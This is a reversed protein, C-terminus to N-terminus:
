GWSSRSVRQGYRTEDGRQRRRELCVAFEIGVAPLAQQRLLELAADLTDHYGAGGAFSGGQGVIFVIAQQAAGNGGELPAPRARVDIVSLKGAEPTPVPPMEHAAM